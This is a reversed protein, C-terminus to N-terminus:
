YVMLCIQAATQMILYFFELNTECNQYITNIIKEQYFSEGVLGSIFIRDESKANDIKM